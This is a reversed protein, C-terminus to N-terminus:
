NLRLRRGLYHVNVKENNFSHTKKLQKILEKEENTKSNIKSYNKARPQSIRTKVLNYEKHGKNLAFISENENKKTGMIRELTFNDVNQNKTNLNKM